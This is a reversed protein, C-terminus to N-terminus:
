CKRARNIAVRSVSLDKTAKSFCIATIEEPNSANKDVDEGFPSKSRERIRVSEGKRFVVSSKFEIALAPGCHSEEFVSLSPKLANRM